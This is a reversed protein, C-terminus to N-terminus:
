TVKFIGTKNRVNSIYDMKTPKKSIYYNYVSISDDKMKIISLRPDYKVILIIIRFFRTLLLHDSLKCSFNCPFNIQFFIERRMMDSFLGLQTVKLVNVNIKRQSFVKSLLNETMQFLSLLIFDFIYLM